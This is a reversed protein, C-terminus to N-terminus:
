DSKEFKIYSWNSLRKAFLLYFLISSLMNWVITPILRSQWYIEWSEQHVQLLKYLFYISLDAVVISFFSLIMAVYFNQHFWRMFGKIVYIVATYAFLYVGIVETYVIDVITGFIVAFALAYYTHEQDFFVAIYVLFLLVWHSIVFADDWLQTQQFIMSMSGELVILLLCLFPLIFSIWRNM